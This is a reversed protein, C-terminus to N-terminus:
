CCEQWAMTVQRWQLFVGVEIESQPLCGGQSGPVPRLQIVAKLNTFLQQNLFGLALFSLGPPLRHFASEAQALKGSQAGTIGFRPRVSPRESLQAQSNQNSRVRQLLLSTNTSLKYIGTVTKPEKCNFFVYFLLSDPYILVPVSTM